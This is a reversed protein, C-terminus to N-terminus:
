WAFVTATRSAVVDSCHLIFALKDWVNMKQFENMEPTNGAIWARGDHKRIVTLVEQMKESPERLVETIWDATFPGHFKRNVSREGVGFKVCDHLLAASLMVDMYEDLQWAPLLVKSYYCDKATRRLIGHEKEDPPAEVHNYGRTWFWEPANILVVLTENMLTPDQIQRVWYQLYRLYLDNKVSQEVRYM